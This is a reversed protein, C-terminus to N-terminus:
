GGLVELLKYNMQNPEGFGRVSSEVGFGNVGRGWGYGSINQIIGIASEALANYAKIKEDVTPVEVAALSNWAPIEDDKMEHKAHKEAYQKLIFCMTGNNRNRDVISEFQEPSLDFKLLKMDGDNIKDGDLAGWRRAAEIGKDKAETIADIAAQKETELQEDLRKVEEAAVDSKYRQNAKNVNNEHDVAKKYFAELEERMKKVYTNM